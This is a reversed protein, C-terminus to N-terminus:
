NVKPKWESSLRQAEAIQERTMQEAASAMNASADEDGLTAALHWWKYAQIFDQPVGEGLRYMLGLNVQARAYGQDAAKRHWKAAEPLSEPVGDGFYYANGLNYLAGAHSQDAAKRWWKMGEAHNVPVGEGLFYMNGLNYEARPYGQDVFSRWIHIATAYDGASHAADADEFPGAVAAGGASMAITVALLASRVVSVFVQM